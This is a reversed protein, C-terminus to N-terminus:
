ESDTVVDETRVVMCGQPTALKKKHGWGWIMSSNADKEM